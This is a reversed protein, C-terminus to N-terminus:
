NQSEPENEFLYKKVFMVTVYRLFDANNKKAFGHGEDTAEIYWVIGGNAKIKEKMQEAETRPVRPDNSGQVILIPNMIKHANNLPSISELFEYMEPDREDGYEVRRLDRRYAETNKLFTNFNSIGVVDVACRIRDSYHVSVALSMYGGYSGGTVMVRDADLDPQSKIWDLLAGIDKVSNERNMGNDLELFNNGYGSSGRVNPFILAAGLENIYYNQFGIYVPRSQSEPGGHIDIIVPRKGEFKAPPRYIFGSIELGDFSNWKILEPVSLEEPVIGGMKSQTWESLEGTETDLVYVDTSSKSTNIAVAMSRGDKHFDLNGVVGTPIGDVRVPDGYPLSILHLRSEGAENTSYALKKGDDSIEIESVDWPIEESLFVVEGTALNLHAVRRFESNLDTVLYLGRGTVDFEGQSFFANGGYIGTIDTVKGSEIELLYLHSETRSIFNSLLLFREDPSWDRIGWGGGSRELILKISSTDKPDMLYIDRDAGNRKTSTFAILDGKNSWVPFSSQVREGKTLATIRKDKVDYRYIHTFEDGGTDKMFLFFEGNLPDYTASRVPEAEDTLQNLVGLPEEVLHLQTTNAARTSIIMKKELPHWACFNASTSQIYKSLEEPMGEPVPPIGEMILNSGPTIFGTQSFLAETFLIIVVAFLKRM